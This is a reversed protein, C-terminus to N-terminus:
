FLNMQSYEPMKVAAVYNESEEAAITPAAAKKKANELFYAVAKEAANAGNILWDPNKRLNESWGRIYEASNENTATLGFYNMLLAAGFEAVVEEKSYKQTHKNGTLDRKMAKGTSHILEHFFTSYYKEITKFQEAPPISVEHFAPSYCATAGSTPRETNLKVGTNKMFTIIAWDIAHNPIHQRIEIKRPQYKSEIGETDDLAFVTFGRPLPIVDKGDLEDQKTAPRHDETNWSFWMILPLGKSGKKVHGGAEKIQNFTAFQQCGNGLCLLAFKNAANYEKGTTFNIFQANWQAILGSDWPVRHGKDLYDMIFTVLKDKATSKTTENTNTNNKKAM